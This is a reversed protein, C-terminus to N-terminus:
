TVNASTNCSQSIQILSRYGLGLIWLMDMCQNWFIRPYSCQYGNIKSTLRWNDMCTRIDVNTDLCPYGYLSMRCHIDTFFLYKHISIWTKHIGTNLWGYEKIFILKSIRPNRHIDRCQSAISERDLTLQILNFPRNETDFVLFLGHKRNDRGEFYFQWQFKFFVDM